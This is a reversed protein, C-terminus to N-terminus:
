CCGQKLIYWYASLFHPSLGKSFPCPQPCCSVKQSSFSQPQVPHRCSAGFSHPFDRSPRPLQWFQATKPPKPRNQFIGRASANRRQWLNSEVGSSSSRSCDLIQRLTRLKGFFCCGKQLHCRKSGNPGMQARISVGGNTAGRSAWAQGAWGLREAPVVWRLM